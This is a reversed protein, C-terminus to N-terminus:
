LIKNKKNNKNMQFLFVRENTKHHIQQARRRRQSLSSLARYFLRPSHTACEAEPEIFLIPLLPTMRMREGRRCVRAGRRAHATDMKLLFWRFEPERAIIVRLHLINNVVM